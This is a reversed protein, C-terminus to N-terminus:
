NIYFIKASFWHHSQSYQYVVVGNFYWSEAIRTNYEKCGDERHGSGNWLYPLRNSDSPSRLCSKAYGLTGAYEQARILAVTPNLEFKLIVLFLVKSLFNLLFNALQNGINEQRFM